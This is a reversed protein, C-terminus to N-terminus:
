LKCTPLLTDSQTRADGDSIGFSGFSGFSGFVSPELMDLFSVHNTKNLVVTTTAAM